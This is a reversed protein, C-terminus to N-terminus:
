ECTFGYGGCIWRAEIADWSCRPPTGNEPIPCDDDVACEDEPTHCFIGGGGCSGPSVACAYGGCDADERCNAEVCQGIGDCYCATGVPCDDHNSCYYLCACYAPKKSEGCVGYPADACNADTSCPEGDLSCSGAPPEPPPCESESEAEAESESEAESEGEAEAEGEAEDGGGCSSVFACALVLRHPLSSRRAPARM